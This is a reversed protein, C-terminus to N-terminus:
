CRIACPGPRGGYNEEFWKDYIPDSEKGRIPIDNCPPRIDFGPAPMRMCMPQMYYFKDYMQENEYGPIPVCQCAQYDAM